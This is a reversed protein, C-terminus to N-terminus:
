SNDSEHNVIAQHIMELDELTAHDLEPREDCCGDGCCDDEDLLEWTLPLRNRQYQNMSWALDDTKLTIVESEGSEKYTIEILHKKKEM